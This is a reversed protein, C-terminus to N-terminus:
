GAGEEQRLIEAYHELGLQGLLQDEGEADGYLAALVDPDDMLADKPDISVTDGAIQGALNPRDSTIYAIVKSNRKQEIKRILDKRKERSM